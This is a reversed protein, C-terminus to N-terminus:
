KALTNKINIIFGKICYIMLLLFLFYFFIFWGQLNLAYGAAEQDM